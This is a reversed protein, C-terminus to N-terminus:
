CEHSEGRGCERVTSKLVTESREKGERESAWVRRKRARARVRMTGKLVAERGIKGKESVRECGRERARVGVCYGKFGGREMAKGKESVCVSEKACQGKRKDTMM